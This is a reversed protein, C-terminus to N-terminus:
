LGNYVMIMIEHDNTTCAWRSISPTIFDGASNQLTAQGPARARFPSIRSSRDNRQISYLHKYSSMTKEQKRPTEMHEGTRTTKYQYNTVPYYLICEPWIPISLM